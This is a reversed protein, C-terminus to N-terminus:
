ACVSPQHSLTATPTVAAGVPTAGVPIPPAFAALSAPDIVTVTNDSSNPVFAYVTVQAHAPVAAALVLCGLFARRSAGLWTILGTKMINGGPQNPMFGCHTTATVLLIAAVHRTTM